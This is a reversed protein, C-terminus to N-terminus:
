TRGEQLVMGINIIHDYRIHGEKDYYAIMEKTAEMFKKPDPVGAMANACATTRTAHEESMDKAIHQQKCAGTHCSFIISYRKINTGCVASWPEGYKGEPKLVVPGKTELYRLALKAAMGPPIMKDVSRQVDPHDMDIVFGLLAEEGERILRRANSMTQLVCKIRESESM